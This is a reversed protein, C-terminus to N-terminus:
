PPKWSPPENQFLKTDVFCAAADEQSIVGRAVFETLADNRLLMGQTRNTSMVNYIQVTQNDRILNRIPTTVPMTEFIAM